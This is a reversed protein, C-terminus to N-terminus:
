GRWGVRARAVEPCIRTLRILGDGERVARWGDAVWIQTDPLTILAPGDVPRDPTETHSAEGARTEEATSQVGSAPTDVAEVEISEIVMPHDVEIFGFLRRHETLFARRMGDLSDLPVDITTDAEAYRIAARAGVSMQAAGQTALAARAEIALQAAAAAAIDAGMADLPAALGASRAVRLRAQGIGWASLLSAYRPSLIEDIDLAEAIRCAIQGAAGGFAILAHDRPDFGRDTSVRRIAGAMQEVAVAIFGEAATEPDSFGMRRALDGLRARAADANLPADGRQGFLKPMAAPDLRGLVLNADTITAPGGRGYAAPGPEAGASQPGVRARSGDFDLISGGGAAITEVDVMSSRLRVGAVEAHDRREVRGAFRCVDTSTGGMDFGLAADHRTRSALGAVAIVGGAPGSLVADRGRFMDARVLGGGSTMFYLDAGNLVSTLAEVYARLRPTLYADAVTTQARTIFRPLPSVESGTAVFGFGAMRAVAAAQQEHDPYLDGHLFTIAVSEFGAALAEDLEQSLADRCLPTVVSGDAAVRGASELVGAYLPPIKHIDLAFLKPRTQDGIILADAFGRNTVFLTKAGSRELLANTAVTTGIRIASVQDAPFPAGEAVNLMRRMATVAADAAGTGRSPLKLAVDRGDPARGVVDTFTGGRDICFTWGATKQGVTSTM